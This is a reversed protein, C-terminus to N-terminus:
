KTQWSLINLFDILAEEWNSIKLNFKRKIKDKSLISYKPRRAVTPYDETKINKIEVRDFRRLDFDRFSM